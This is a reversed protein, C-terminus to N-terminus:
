PTPGGKVPSVVVTPYFSEGVTATATPPVLKLRYSGDFAVVTSFHRTKATM